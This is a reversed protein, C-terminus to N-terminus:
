CVIHLVPHRLIIFCKKFDVDLMNEKGGRKYSRLSIDTKSDAHLKWDNEYCM